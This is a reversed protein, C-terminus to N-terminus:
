PALMRTETDRLFEKALKAYRRNDNRYFEPSQDLEDLLLKMQEAAASRQGIRNLLLGYRYRAEPLNILQLLQEFLTRAQEDDHMQECCDALELLALGAHFKPDAGVLLNLQDRADRFRGLEKYAIAIDYRATPPVAPGERELLKELLAVAQDFKGAHLLQAGKRQLAAPTGEGVVDWRADAGAAGRVWVTRGLWNRTWAFYLLSGFLPFIIVVLIWLRNQGRQLCDTIAWIVLILYIIELYRAM